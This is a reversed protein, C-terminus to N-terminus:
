LHKCLRYVDDETNDWVIDLSAQSTQLWFSSEDEPLRTVLMRTGDPLEAQELLEIKGYRITAWLTKLM